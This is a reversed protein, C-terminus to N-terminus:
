FFSAAKIIEALFTTVMKERVEVVPCINSSRNLNSNIVTTRETEWAVM